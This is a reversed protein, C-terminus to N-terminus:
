RFMPLYYKSIFDVLVRYGNETPHYSDWFIYKSVDDCISSTLGNCLVSVELKGTGCCGQNSVEFGYNRPHLCMDNLIGYIDVLVVKSSPFQSQLKPMQATLGSNISRAMQNQPAACDRSLGGSLTRQSPVCGIPPISVIAIKRAGTQLLKQIFDSAFGVLLNSYSPIDYVTRRFPTPFYTNAVDDSGACVVYLSESFITAAREAGVIAVVKKKYEDFLELQQDMSLVSAVKATVPDFGTGGSAFSVGTILDESSLETGVYAPVYEKIGLESAILDGPIKGNCFRGTPEHNTYNVGYPPFNCKIITKIDNNNGPDVISDGFVILAPISKTKSGHCDTKSITFVTVSFLFFMFQSTFLNM